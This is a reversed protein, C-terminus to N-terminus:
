KGDVGLTINLSINPNLRLSETYWNYSYNPKNLQCYDCPHEAINRMQRTIDYFGYFIMSIALMLIILRVLNDKGGFLLNALNIKGSEDYIPHIVQWGKMFPIKSKNLYVTEGDIVVKKSEM